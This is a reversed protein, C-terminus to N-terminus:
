QVSALLRPILEVVRREIEDRVKRFEPETMDRPDPLPWDERHAAPIWPCEDGCGMTVVWAYPGEPIQELSKSRHTTLDYGLEKMAAIARPKIVGSPKSGASFPEVVEAGHMRAFAEAMQSRNANEVCM